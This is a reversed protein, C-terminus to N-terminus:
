SSTSCIIFMAFLMEIFYILQFTLFCYHGHFRTLAVAIVAPLYLECSDATFVTL